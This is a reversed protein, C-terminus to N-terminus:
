RVDELLATGDPTWRRLYETPSAAGVRRFDRVLHSQDSYGADNALKSWDVNTSERLTRLTWVFRQIAAYRKPSIGVDRVFSVSLHKRSVGADEHLTAVKINGHADEIRTAAQRVFEAPAAHVGRQELLFEELVAFREAASTARMVRERLATGADGLFDHIDVIANANRAAQRGLLATAGLPHLRASVLHTGEKTEIILSREHLGSFWGREWLGTGQDSLVRHVPGLNIMVETFGNPLLTERFPSVDGEVEWFEHVLGALEPAPAATRLRWQGIAAELAIEHVPGPM